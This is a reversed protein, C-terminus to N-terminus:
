LAPAAPAAPLQQPPPLLSTSFPEQWSCSGPALCRLTMMPAHANLSHPNALSTLNARHCLPRSRTNHMELQAAKMSCPM